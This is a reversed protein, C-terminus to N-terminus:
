SQFLFVVGSHSEWAPLRQGARVLPVFALSAGLSTQEPIQKASSLIEEM